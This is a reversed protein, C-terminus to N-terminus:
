RAAPAQTQAQQTQTSGAASTNILEYVNIRANENNGVYIRNTQPDIAIPAVLDMYEIMNAKGGFYMLLQFGPSPSFIQVASHEGEAVYVNGFSDLAIGKLRSFTGPTDGAEGFSRVFKGEPDFQQIRFNLADSVYLNGAKDLALYSPFNFEGESAGRQGIERVLRGDLTYVQVKHSESEAGATDAVYVLKREQDLALGTPRVLEQGFTRLRRGDKSYVAVRRAGSESIYVNEQADLAVNFPLNFGTDPAFESLRKEKFDAVLVKNVRLDAIYLRQGDASIALGMPSAIGVRSGGGRLTRGLEAMTSRDLDDGSRFSQVFRIRPTDPPEPWVVPPRPPPHACAAAAVALLAFRRTANM